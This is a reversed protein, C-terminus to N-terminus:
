NQTTGIPSVELSANKVTGWIGRHGGRSCRALGSSGFTKLNDIANTSRITLQYRSRVGSRVGNTPALQFARPESAMPCMTLITTGPPYGSSTMQSKITPRSTTFPISPANM